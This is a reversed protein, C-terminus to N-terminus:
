YWNKIKLSNGGGRGADAYAEPDTSDYERLTPYDFVAKIGNAGQKLLFQNRKNTEEPPGYGALQRQTWTRGRYM